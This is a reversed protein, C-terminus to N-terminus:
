RDDFALLHTFNQIVVFAFRDGHKDIFSIHFKGLFWIFYGRNRKGFVVIVNDNQATNRRKVGM